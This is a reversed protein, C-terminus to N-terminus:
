GAHKGDEEALIKLIDEATVAKKISEVFNTHQILRSIRALTKLHISAEEPPGVLLFVFYVPARDLSEYEAGEPIRGLIISQDKVEPSVAHPVAIGRGIGTTMIKERELLSKVLPAPDGIKGCTHLMGVLETLLEEKNRAKIDPAVNERSIFDMLRM